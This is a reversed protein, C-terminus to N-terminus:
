GLSYAIRLLSNAIEDRENRQHPNGDWDSINNLFSVSRFLTYQTKQLNANNCSSLSKDIAIQEQNKTEIFNLEVSNQSTM